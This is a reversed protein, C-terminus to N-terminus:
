SSSRGDSRTALAQRCAAELPDLRHTLSRWLWDLDIEDYDHRLVSGLRRLKVFEAEPYEADLVDGIRRAAECIRQLCREVADQTREDAAFREATVGRLHRRIRAINALLQELRSALRESSM